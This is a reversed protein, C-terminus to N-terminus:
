KKREHKELELLVSIGGIEVTQKVFGVDKAFWYSTVVEMGNQEMKITVRLTKFVGAPVEVKEEAEIEGTYKLKMKQITIDGGWKAGVKAPYPLLQLPPSVELGNLRHRFIGKETQSLHETVNGKSAELRSLKEGNITEIKAIRTTITDTKDNATVRFKWENGEEVPYYNPTKGKPKEKKAEQGGVLTASLLLFVGLIISSRM